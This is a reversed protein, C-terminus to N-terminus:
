PQAIATYTVTASYSAAPSTVLVDFYFVDTYQHSASPAHNYVVGDPGEGLNAANALASACNVWGGSEVLLRGFPYDGTATRAVNFARNSQVTATVNPSLYRAGPSLSCVGVAANQGLFNLNSGFTVSDHNLSLTLVDSVSATITVSDFEDARTTNAFGLTVFLALVLALCAFRQKM